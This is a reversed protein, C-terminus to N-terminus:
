RFAPVRLLYLCLLLDAVPRGRAPSTSGVVQLCAQKHLTYIHHMCVPLGLWALM